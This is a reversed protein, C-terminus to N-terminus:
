STLARVYGDAVAAESLRRRADDLTAESMDRCTKADLMRGAHEILSDVDPYAVIFGTEGHRIIEANGGVDFTAMPVGCLVAELLAMSYNEVLTPSVGFSCSKAVAIIDEGPARGPMYLRARGEVSALEHRLAEPIAGSIYFGVPGGAATTLGEVIRKVFGSGKFKNGGGPIFVLPQGPQLGLEPRPDQLAIADIFAQGVFNRAVQVPGSFTYATRFVDSMYTSPCIVKDIKGLAKQELAMAWRIDLESHPGIGPLGIFRSPNHHCILVTRRGEARGMWLGPAGHDPVIVLDPCFGDLAKGVKRAGWARVLVDAMQYAAKGPTALKFFYRTARRLFQEIFLPVMFRSIDPNDAEGAWDDFCSFVRVQFGKDKLMRYLHFHSSAIGGGWGPPFSDTVIAIRKVTM